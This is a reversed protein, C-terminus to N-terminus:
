AACKLMVSDPKPWEYKVIEPWGKADRAPRVHIATPEKLWHHRANDIDMLWQLTQDVTMLPWDSTPRRQAWWSAAKQRAYGTHELCVWESAVRLFGSFYDVRLTPVGSKGLHKSYVVRSVDYRVPPPPPPLQTSLIAAAKAQAEHKLERAWTYGCEPCPNTSPHLYIQCEPCTKTPAGTTAAEGKAKQKKVTIADVPGHEAIVGAYDLVLCDSKAPALRFGRGVMQYYLGASKTPRLLAVLDIGPHDFGECNGMVTVSGDRRTIINGSRTKVCWVREPTYSSEEKWSHRAAINHTTKKSLFLSGIVFSGKSRYSLYAKYNRCVAVAQIMDLVDPNAQYLLITKSAPPRHGHNGHNGDGLWFGYIFADFQRQDLGWLFDLSGKQLYIEIEFVGKRKQHGGGTGRSFSWEITSQKEREIRHCDVGDFVKNFAEVISPQHKGTAFKFEFGGKNLATKTGDAHFLGIFACQEDTLNEVATYQMAYRANVRYTAEIKAAVSTMGHAKRLHYSLASILRGHKSKPLVQIPLDISKPPALGSVPMICRKESLSEVPRKKWVDHKGGSAVLINHGETVRASHHHISFMREDIRRDRKFIDLPEEFYINGNDWNAVRSQPNIDDIGVWGSDTLIQTKEDLCLVMCNCLARLKGAKFDVILRDRETGPTEGTLSAAPIGAANLTEAVHQSHAVGACFLLWSKRDHGLRAMDQVAGEILNQQDMLEALEAGIYEGQRLHLRSTDPQVASGKCILPSLYGQQILDAVGIEYAISQLISDTGIISGSGLRWPTASLGIIRLNPNARRADNIFTRWIGEDRATPIHHAEDILLVDFMGLQMAKKFVSQISAFLVSTDLDRRKLGACYVGVPAPTQNQAEWFIRFKQTNQEVLEKTHALVAVRTDPWTTMWRHIMDAMILTKGGGTPIMLCFGSQGQRMAQDAALSAAIQYPRLEFM